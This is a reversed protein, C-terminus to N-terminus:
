LTEAAARRGVSDAGADRPGEAPAGPGGRSGGDSERATDTEVAPGPLPSLRGRREKTDTLYAAVLAALAVCVVAWGTLRRRM